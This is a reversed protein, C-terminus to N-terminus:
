RRRRELHRWAMGNVILVGAVLGDLWVIVPSTMLPALAVLVAAGAFFLRSGRM